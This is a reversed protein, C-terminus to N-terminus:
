EPPVTSTTTATTIAVGRVPWVRRSSEKTAFVENGSDMRVVHAMYPNSAYSTGTWYHIDSQVDTFKYM